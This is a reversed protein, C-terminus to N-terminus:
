LLICLEAVDWSHQEALVVVRTREQVIHSVRKCIEQNGKDNGPTFATVTSDVEKLSELEHKSHKSRVEDVNIDPLKRKEL